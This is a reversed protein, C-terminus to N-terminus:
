KDLFALVKNILSVRKNTFPHDTEWVQYEFFAHNSQQLADAIQKNKTHEDLMIIQKNALKMGDNALNFYARLM